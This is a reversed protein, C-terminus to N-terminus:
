LFFKHFVEMLANALFISLLKKLLPRGQVLKSEAEIGTGKVIPSIRKMYTLRTNVKKWNNNEHIWSECCKVSWKSTQINLAKM